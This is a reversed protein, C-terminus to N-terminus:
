AALPLGLQGKITAGKSGNCARCACQVNSWLHGGGLALPIIHDLEPADPVMQGRLRKPTRKGCLQCTWRDRDFVAIPDILEGAVAVRARRLAKELKKRARGNPTKKRLRNYERRRALLCPACVRKGLHACYMDVGCDKCTKRFRREQYKAIRRLAASEAQVLDSPKWRWAEAIRVLADIEHRLMMARLSRRKRGCADSCCSTYGGPAGTSSYSDFQSGCVECSSMRDVRSYKGKCRNSCFRRNKIISPTGEM